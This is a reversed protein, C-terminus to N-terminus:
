GLSLKRQLVCARNVLGKLHGSVFRIRTSPRIRNTYAVHPRLYKQIRMFFNASVFIEPYTHVPGLLILIKSDLFNKSKSDQAKSDPICSLSDPIGSLSQFGLDLNRQCLIRFGTGPIWFGPRPIWIGLSDQIGKCSAFM